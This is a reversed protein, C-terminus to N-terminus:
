KAASIGIQRFFGLLQRSLPTEPPPPAAEVSYRDALAPAANRTRHRQLGSEISRWALAHRLPKLLVRHIQAQNILDVLVKSDRHTTLVLAIIQPFRTKLSKLLQTIDDGGLSVESIVLSVDGQKLARLAQDVTAVWEVQHRDSLHGDLIGKIETASGQDDDIVLIRGINAEAKAVIPNDALVPEARGELQMAISVASQVTARIGDPNWPKNIFRFIEGENISGCVADMDSYGTLLMRMTNPSIDRAQRLLDVGAMIPMRQDSILAHVKERRLIDLAVQGSTTVHVKYHTAFMMRLSRLIREEDDVFLITPKKAAAKPPMGSSPISTQPQM